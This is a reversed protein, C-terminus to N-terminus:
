PNVKDEYKKTPVRSRHPRGIPETPSAKISDLVPQPIGPHVVPMLPKALSTTNPSARNFDMESEHVSGGPTSIFPAANSNTSSDSEVSYLITSSPQQPVLQRPRKSSPTLDQAPCPRKPTPVATPIARPINSCPKAAMTAVPSPTQTPLTRTPTPTRSASSIPTSPIVNQRATTFMAIAQEFPTSDSSSSPPPCDTPTTTASPAVPNSPTFSKDLFTWTDPVVIFVYDERRFAPPQVMLRHDLLGAVRGTCSLLCNAQFQTDRREAMKKCLSAWPNLHIPFIVFISFPYFGQRPIRNADGPAIFTSLRVFGCCKLQPESLNTLASDKRLLTQGSGIISGLFSVTPSITPFRDNISM